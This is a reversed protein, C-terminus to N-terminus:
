GHNEDYSSTQRQLANGVSPNTKKSPTFHAPLTSIAAAGGDRRKNPLIDFAALAKPLLAVLAALENVPYKELGFSDEM